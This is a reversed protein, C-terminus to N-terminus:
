AYTNNTTPKKTKIGTSIGITTMVMWFIMVGYQRVIDINTLTKPLINETLLIWIPLSIGSLLFTVLITKPKLEISEILLGNIVLLVVGAIGVILGPFIYKDLDFSIAALITGIFIATSIIVIVFILGLKQKLPQELNILPTGLGFLFPIVIWWDTLHALTTGLM